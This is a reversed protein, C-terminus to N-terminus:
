GEFFRNCLQLVNLIHKLHECLVVHNTLMASMDSFYYFYIFVHHHKVTVKIYCFEITKTQFLFGEPFSLM